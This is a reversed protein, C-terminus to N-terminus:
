RGQVKGSAKKELGDQITQKVIPSVNPDDLKQLLEQVKREDM